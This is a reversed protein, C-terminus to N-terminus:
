SQAPFGTSHYTFPVSAIVQGEGFIWRSPPSLPPSLPNALFFSRHKACACAHNFFSVKVATARRPAVQTSDTQLFGLLVWSDM